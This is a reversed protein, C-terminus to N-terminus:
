QGKEFFHIELDFITLNFTDAVEQMIRNVTKPNFGKGVFGKRYTHKVRITGAKLLQDTNKARVQYQQSQM